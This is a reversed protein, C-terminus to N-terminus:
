KGEALAEQAWMLFEDGNAKFAFREIKELAAKYRDREAEVIRLNDKLWQKTQFTPWHKSQYGCNSM